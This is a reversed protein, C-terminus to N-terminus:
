DSLCLRLQWQRCQSLHPPFCDAVDTPEFLVVDAKVLSLPSGHLGVCMCVCVCVYAWVCVDKGQTRTHTPQAQQAVVGVQGPVLVQQEGLRLLESGLQSKKLGADLVVKLLVGLLSM